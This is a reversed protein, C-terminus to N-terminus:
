GERRDIGVEAQVINVKVEESHPEPGSPEIHPAIEEAKIVTCQSVVVAQHFRGDEM